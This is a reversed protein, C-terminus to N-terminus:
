AIMASEDKNSMEGEEEEFTMEIEIQRKNGGGRDVNKRMRRGIKRKEMQLATSFISLFHNSNNDCQTM